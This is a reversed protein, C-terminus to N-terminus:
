QPGAPLTFQFTVDPGDHRITRLRGRHAAIISRSISLGLGLGHSKTTHFPAFIDRMRHPEIGIGTDHVAVRLFRPIDTDAQIRLIRPRDRVASLADLSNMVLNMLVQQVQVRDANVQPLNTRLRAQVSVKRKRAESKTLAIIERIVQHLGFRTKHPKGNKLFSRIRALVESARNGDRIIRQLAERAEKLNPSDDSVWNLAAKANTVIGALPQNVEHAISATLEGVISARAVRRMTRKESMILTKQKKNSYMLDNATTLLRKMAAM